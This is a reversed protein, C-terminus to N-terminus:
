EATEQHAKKSLRHVWYLPLGFILILLLPVFGFMYLRLYLTSAADGADSGLKWWHYAATPSWDVEALPNLHLLGRRAYAAPYGRNSASVYYSNALEPEGAADYYLALEYPAFPSQLDTDAYHLYKLGEAADKETGEGRLMMAGAKVAADAHGQAAAERYLPLAESAKNEQQLLWGKHYLAAPIRAQVAQELYRQGLTEDKNVGKANLYADAVIYAMQGDQTHDALRRAHHLAKAPSKETGLGSTYAKFLQYSAGVVGAEAAQEMHALGEQANREAGLANLEMYGQWYLSEQRGAAAEQTYITYAKAYASKAAEPNGQKNYLEGLLFAASPDNRASLRNLWFLTKENDTPIYEDGAMFLRALTWMATLDGNEAKTNLNQLLTDAWHRAQEQHGQIAYRLYLQRQSYADGQTAAEKLGALREETATDPAAPISSQPQEALAPLLLCFLLFINKKM